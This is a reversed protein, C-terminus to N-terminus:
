KGISNVEVGYEILLKVIPLSESASAVQLVSSSSVRDIKPDPGNELLTQVMNM